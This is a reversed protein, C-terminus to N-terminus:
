RSDQLLSELLTQSVKWNGKVTTKDVTFVGSTLLGSLDDPNPEHGEREIFRRLLGSIEELRDRATQAESENSCPASLSLQLADGNRNLALIVHSAPRLASIFARTGDPVRDSSQLVPGPIRLWVPDTPLDAAAPQSAALRWAAQPAQSVAMAMVHKSIPFFSIRKDPSSGGAECFANLCKGGQQAAWTRLRDWDFRGKLLFFSEKGLFSALVLDLDRTYDFGTGAVFDRYEQEQTGAADALLKLVGAQRLAAVDIAVQASQAPLRAMLGPLSEAKRSRYVYLGVAILTCLTVTVGLVRWGHLRLRM